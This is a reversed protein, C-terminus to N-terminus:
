IDRVAFFADNTTVLMGAVSIVSSGGQKSIELKISKSEGPMVPGDGVAYDFKPNM